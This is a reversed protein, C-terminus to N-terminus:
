KITFEAANSFLANEHQMLITAKYKGTKPLGPHEATFELSEGPLLRLPSVPLRAVLAGHQNTIAIVGAPVVPDLGINKVMQHFTITQSDDDVSIQLPEHQLHFDNNITFTVLAGLSATMALTNQMGVPTRGMFVCAIARPGPSDPVTVTVRTSASGAAPVIVDDDNFVANRAISGPLEGAPIFARKGDRVVVDQAEMHFALDYITNNWLTLEQTFTQGPKAKVMVVAPTLTLTPSNNAAGASKQGFGHCGNLTTVLMAILRVAHRLQQRKLNMPTLNM